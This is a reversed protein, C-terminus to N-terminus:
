WPQRAAPVPAGGNGADSGCLGSPVPIAGSRDDPIVAQAHDATVVMTGVTVVVVTRDDDWDADGSPGRGRVAQTMVSECLEEASGGRVKATRLRDELPVGDLAETVGDSVLLCIDGAHVSLREQDFTASSLLGAPPGGRDLYRTRAPGLLIGPPHGANSYVLTHARLDIAAVICTVYPMGHWDELFATSLQGLIEAPALRQRALARFTSRLSGLAMAAPIGKGSVDAVLVMWTDSDTEVFDYFDGGIKGAPRLAAAWECGNTAPLPPLLRRQIDAALSLQTQVVIEAREREALEHRTALLDRWLYVAIGLAVALALDSVWALEWETPQLWRIVVAELAAAFIYGGVAAAASEALARRTLAIPVIDSSRRTASATV